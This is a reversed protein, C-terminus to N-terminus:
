LRHLRVVKTVPRNLVSTVTRVQIKRIHGDSSPYVENIVGLPWNCRPINDEVLLIVDGQKM